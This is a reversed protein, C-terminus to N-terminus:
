LGKQKRFLSSQRRSLDIKDGTTLTIRICGSFWESVDSIFQTNIIQARNARFFIPIKLRQELSSLSRPLLLKGSDFFVQTYNGVSQLLYISRVSVFWTRQDSKLLVHDTETLPAENQKGEDSTTTDHLRLIAAALRAPDVPKLLYDVANVEFARLAHADYATCFIIKPMADNMANVFEFGDMEPMQIDLFIVDPKLDSLLKLASHGSEAEGIIEIEPHVELLRRMERRAMREDDVILAKM